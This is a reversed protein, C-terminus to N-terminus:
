AIPATGQVLQKEGKGREHRRLHAQRFAFAVAFGCIAGGTHGLVDIVKWVSPMFHFPLQVVLIAYRIVDFSFGADQSSKSPKTATLYAWASAVAYVAGSAGMTNVEWRRTLVTHWLTLLAGSVGGGLYILMFNGRGIEEHLEVGFMALGIMNAMLHAFRQHSFMQGVTSLAYPYAPSLVFYKNMNRWLAGVADTSKASTLLLKDLTKSLSVFQVPHWTVTVLVCPILLGVLTAISLRLDPFLRDEQAPPTYHNAGLYCIGIFAAAFITCPGLRHWNSMQPPHDQDLIQSKKHLEDRRKELEKLRLGRQKEADEKAIGLEKSKQIGETRQMEERKRQKLERDEKSKKLMEAAVSHRMRWEVSTTDEVDESEMSAQPKPKEIGSGHEMKAAYAATWNAAAEEEDVAYNKRLWKLANLLGSEPINCDEMSVGFDALSGSTRRHHLVKLVRNGESITVPQGFIDKLKSEPLEPSKHRIKRNGTEQPNRSRRSPSKHSSKNFHDDQRSSLGASVHYAHRFSPQPCRPVIRGSYKLVLHNSIPSPELAAARLLRHAPRGSQIAKILGNQM